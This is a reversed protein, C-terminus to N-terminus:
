FIKKGQVFTHTVHINKNFIIIDADYGPAIKGKRHDIGMLTAPTLTMMRVADTLPQGAVQYMNRVLRDATAVSGAFAQRDPMKAVGDEVIVEQGHTLSGLISKGEPMGAARMSDTVLAIKDPGKIKTVLRMLPEPVHIGDAILELCLDDILYGAEICGAYRFANRRTIGNMCSYFHTIHRFGHRHAEVIDEYVADTHAVSPKIGRRCLEDALELAGPLEPALSWRVIDDSRELIEMYEAPHPNRLFKPDQAGRFAVSFYPGELHLGGFAAGEQQHKVRDYIDLFRFLEGNDSALTTPYLLTTGYRAHTRAITLCAEETCDMFDANGAGHTHIDIFGPAIYGGRADISLGGEAGANGQQIGIIKNGEITVTGIGLNREPTLIEGNYIHIMQNREM